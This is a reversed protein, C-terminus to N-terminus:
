FSLGSSLAGIVGIGLAVLLAVAVVAVFAVLCGTAKSRRARQLEEACKKEDFPDNLWDYEERKRTM